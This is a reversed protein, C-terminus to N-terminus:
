GPPLTAGVSPGVLGELLGGLEDLLRGYEAWDGERQAELAAQYVDLADELSGPLAEVGPDQQGGDVAAAEGLFVEALASELDLAMSLRDSSAVIVRTLQPMATQEAQLYLPQIFVVSAEIPIVLMNGLLVSSGRQNWLSLQQSIAPDQNIRASVQDPGLVLEQKPFTYVLRRGYEEGDSRAAMWGIMNQKNRPTFPQMIMFEVEDSGPLRMLVYFPDMTGAGSEEGPLAWQDEKNYFVTPDEMHYTKYVEAQIAFLDEPYRLHARVEDPMESSDKVLDPFVGRWAALVPDEEDFAYLTTTGDYADVTAKVSNRVYNIGGAGLRESYPYDRTYTYGDLIWVLGGDVVALYPDSDLELWPALTQVRDRVSRHFLVKSDARVFESLLLKATSFRSAFALRRALSSLPVGAQGDYTNEANESGVPYDFEPLDTPAVVYNGTEEGFYIRPQEIELDTSTVPPIDKVIFDPFGDSTALNVPSVVAGNGHTYVLHQNVWTRAKEELEDVNMERASVLVQRYEGDITYRDIDVDNFDYYFRIEQLQKYSRVVVSPDWLRVNDITSANEEIDAASLRERAAFPEVEVDDLDFARRTAAINREIFPAEAAVENPAVRFQQVLGPYVSGVLISAGVWIGLAIIPLRWGKFRINLLLVVASALAIFILIRLAPLQAYVDTYSAGLVQGRPSFNLAFVDLYYGFAQVVLILGGLVSLHAKVHPTFKGMKLWPRIAGDILHVAGTVILVVVLAGLLWDTVVRLAPLTFVYFAVDRGFQPDTQGFSVANLALQFTEWEAAMSSGFVLALGASVALLVWRLVPGLGSRAREVFAQLQDAAIDFPRPMVQPALRRAIVVNVQILVFFVLGFVLGTVLASLFRTWFVGEQGVQQFWLLDTYFVSLPQVAIALLAVVAIV